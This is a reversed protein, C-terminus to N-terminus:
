VGFPRRPRRSAPPRRSRPLQVPPRAAPSLHNLLQAHPREEKDKRGAQRGAQAAGMLKTLYKSQRRLYNTLQCGIGAQRGAPRGEQRGAPRIVGVRSRQQRRGGVHKRLHLSPSLNDPNDTCMAFTFVVRNKEFTVRKYTIVRRDSAHM